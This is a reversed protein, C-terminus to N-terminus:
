ALTDANNTHFTDIQTLPSDNIKQVNDTLDRNSYKHKNVTM